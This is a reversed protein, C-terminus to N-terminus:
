ASPTLTDYFAQLRRRLDDYMWQWSLSAKSLKDREKRLALVEAHLEACAARLVDIEM